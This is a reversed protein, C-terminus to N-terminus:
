KLATDSFGALIPFRLDKKWGAPAAAGAAVKLCMGAGSAADYGAAASLRSFIFM